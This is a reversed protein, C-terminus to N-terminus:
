KLMIFWGDNIFVTKKYIKTLIIRLLQGIKDLVESRRIYIYYFKPLKVYLNFATRMAILDNESLNKFHLAPKDHQFLTDKDNGDPNFFGEKIAIERLKTGEFPYFFTTNPYQVNADRNIDVTKWYTERTEFPIGFMNFSSTRIYYKRFLKFANIIEERTDIRKLLKKRIKEDGTEIGISVSVCNMEKLLKVKEETVFKSNTMIVFPLNVKIKYQESLERLYPMPKLLFDEDHFKFFELSFRNKLYSLEDVIRDISYRRMRILLNQELYMERYYQNICYTCSNPCGWNIMHDGGIYVKGDYPKYFHRKDFMEWDLYPLSDLNLHIPNLENKIISNGDKMWINKIKKPDANEELVRILEPFATIGEGICAYDIDFDKLTKHPNLTTFKNGWIIPIEPDINRAIEVIRAAILYEDSLVSFALCDPSFDNFFNSFYAELEIDKKKINFPSFDIPKFINIEERTRTNDLFGFDIETTDFLECKYGLRKAIGSLLSLGIPKYGFQDKNPWVFLIKMIVLFYVIYISLNHYNEDWNFKLAQRCIDNM